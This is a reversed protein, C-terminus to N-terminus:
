IFIKFIEDLELEVIFAKNDNVGLSVFIRDQYICLSCVFEIYTKNFFKFNKSYSITKNKTDYIMWKHFSKDLYKHILFLKKNEGIDIGNSSGHWGDLDQLAKKEIEIVEINNKEIDKIIFPSVKYIVKQKENDIFPMWNKEDKDPLCKEHNTSLINDKLNCKVLCPSSNNCEPICALVITSDIFRIDEVGYWLSYGTPMNYVVNLKLEECNDLNIPNNTIEGKILYYESRSSDGYIQFTKNEYKLYNVTRLLIKFKGNSDIWFSPNMEWFRNSSGFRDKYNITNAFIPTIFKKTIIM